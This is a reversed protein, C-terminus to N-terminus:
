NYKNNVLEWATDKIIPNSNKARSPILLSVLKIAYSEVALVLKINVIKHFEVYSFHTIEIESGYKKIAYDSKALSKVHNDIRQHLDGASGIYIKKRNMDWWCYVVKGVHKYKGLSEIPIPKSFHQFVNKSSRSKGDRKPKNFKGTGIYQMLIPLLENKDNVEKDIVEFIGIDNVVSGKVTISETATADILKGGSYLTFSYPFTLAMKEKVDATITMRHGVYYADNNIVDINTKDSAVTIPYDVGDWRIIADFEKKKPKESFLNRPLKMVGDHFATKQIKIIGVLEKEEKKKKAKGQM